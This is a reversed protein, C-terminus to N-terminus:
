QLEIKQYTTHISNTMKLFYLGKDFSSINIRATQKINNWKHIMKGNIDILELTNNNNSFNQIFLYDNTPNPFISWNTEPLVPYSLPNDYNVDFVYLGTQM